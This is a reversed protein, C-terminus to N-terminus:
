FSNAAYVGDVGGGYKIRQHYAESGFINFAQTKEGVSIKVARAWTLVPTDFSLGNNKDDGRWENLYVAKKEMASWNWPLLSTEEGVMRAAIAFGIIVLALIAIEIISKKM